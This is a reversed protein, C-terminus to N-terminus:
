DAGEFSSEWITTFGGILWASVCARQGKDMAM